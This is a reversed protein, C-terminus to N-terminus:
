ASLKGDARLNLSMMGINYKNEIKENESEKYKSDNYFEYAFKSYSDFADLLNQSDRLYCSAM